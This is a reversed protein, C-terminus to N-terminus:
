AASIRSKHLLAMSSVTFRMTELIFGFTMALGPSTIGGKVHIFELNLHDRGTPYMTVM